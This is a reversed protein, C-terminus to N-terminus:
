ANDGTEGSSTLVWRVIVVIVGIVDGSLVAANGGVRSIAGASARGGAIEVASCVSAVFDCRTLCSSNQQIM